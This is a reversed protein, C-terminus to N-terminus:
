SEDEDTPESKYFERYKLSVRTRIAIDLFLEAKQLKNHPPNMIFVFLNLYDDTYKRFFGSHSNLFYQLLSHVNNIRDLTNEEDSLGKTDDTYYVEEKLSLKKVLSNHAPDGDHILTSRKKIHGKFIELTEESTPQGIGEVKCFIRRRDAATAICIQNRSIGRYEKGDEKREVDQKRVKIYTEDLYVRGSLVIDDQYHRLVLFVKQLWYRSTTFSNKNNKSGANLSVYDFLNLLYQLWEGISIKHDEFITGTTVCFSQQCDKCLYRQLNTVKYKGFRIFHTSGCYPCCVPVYKDFLESDNMEDLSQHHYDFRTRYLDRLFSQLPTREEEMLDDWPTKRRSQSRKNKNKM